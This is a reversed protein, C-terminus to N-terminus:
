CLRCIPCISFDTKHPVGCRLCLHWGHELRWHKLKAELTLCRAITLRIHEDELTHLDQLLKRLAMKEFPELVVLALEEHTPMEPEPEPEEKFKVGQARFIIESVVTTGILRNLTAILRSKHMTLEHSWVSSKTHVIMVGDRMTQAQSALAGLKGKVRPWYAIAIGERIKSASELGNITDNILHAMPSKRVSAVGLVPELKGKPQLSSYLRLNPRGEITQYSPEVVAKRKRGSQRPKQNQQDPNEPEM